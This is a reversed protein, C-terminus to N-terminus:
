AVAGRAAVLLERVRASMVISRKSNFMGAAPYELLASVGSAVHIERAGVEKLLHHVNAPTIGAGPMIVIRGAAVEIERKLLPIGEIATSAKGSTLVRDIGLAVLESIAPLPDPVIDIARHFTVSLPRALGALVRTRELDLSNDPRLIGFVVGDAGREKAAAIENKMVEFEPDSYTFDGSRPRIMVHVAVGVSNRVVEIMGVAPTTGGATLDSCLEVRAAGGEQAAMASEVSDVCVELLPPM